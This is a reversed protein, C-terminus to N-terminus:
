PNELWLYGAFDMVGAKDSSVSFDIGVYAGAPVDIDLPLFSSGKQQPGLATNFATPGFTESSFDFCSPPVLNTGGNQVVRVCAKFQQQGPIQASGLFFSIGRVATPRAAFFWSNSNRKEKGEPVTHPVPACRTDQCGAPINVPLRSGTVSYMSDWRPFRVRRLERLNETKATINVMAGAYLGEGQLGRGKAAWQPSGQFSFREGPRLVLGRTPGFDITPDKTEESYVCAVEGDDNDDFQFISARNIFFCMDRSLPTTAAGVFTSFPAIFRIYLPSATRNVIVDGYIIDGATAPGGMVMTGIQAPREFGDIQPSKVIENTSVQGFACNVMASDRSGDYELIDFGTTYGRSGCFLHVARQCGRGSVAAARTCVSDFTALESASTVISDVVRSGKLCITAFQVNNVGVVGVSSQFGRQLCSRRSASACALSSPNQSTCAGSYPFEMYAGSSAPICRIQAVTHSWQVPGAGGAYGHAVCYQLAAWQCGISSPNFIDCGKEGRAGRLDALSHVTLLSIDLAQAPVRIKSLHENQGNTGISLGMSFCAGLVFIFPILAKWNSRNV